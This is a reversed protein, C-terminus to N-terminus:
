NLPVDSGAVLVFSKVRVNPPLESLVSINLCECESIYSCCPESQLFEDAALAKETKIRGVPVCIVKRM